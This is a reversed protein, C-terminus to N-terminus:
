PGTGHDGMREAVAAALAALHEEETGARNRYGPASGTRSPPSQRADSVEPMSRNADAHAQAIARDFYKLSSPPGQGRQRLKAMQAKVTSLIIEDPIGQRVWTACLHGSGCWRPDDLVGLETLVAKWLPIHATPPPEEATMPAERAHACAGGGGVSEKSENQKAAGDRREQPAGAATDAAGVRENVQYEDYNCITIVTQGAAVGCRIMDETQARDLFRRVRKEDWQWAKALYRLSACLQGRELIITKGNVGYRRAAYAANEILWVWADRRSFPEDNFLSNEQWGRHMLYFGDSM